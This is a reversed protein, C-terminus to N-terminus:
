KFARIWNIEACHKNNNNYALQGQLNATQDSLNIKFSDLKSQYTDSLENIMNYTLSIANSIQLSKYDEFLSNSTHIFKHVGNMFFKAEKAFDFLYKDVVCTSDKKANQIALDCYNLYAARVKLDNLDINSPNPFRWKNRAANLYTAYSESLTSM